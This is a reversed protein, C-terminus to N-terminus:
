PTYGKAELVEGILAQVIDLDGEAMERFKFNMNTLNSKKRLYSNARRSPPLDCFAFIGDLVERPKVVFDEYRVELFQTEPLERKENEVAEIVRRWQLAALAAASRGYREWEKVDKDTLADYWWPQELGRGQRWFEVNLLSRVVARGDRIIHIFIADPFISRLYHIRPPGTLKASFRTRRQFRTVKRVASRLRKRESPTAKVGDLFSYLFKDGCHLKWFGYAEAPKPLYRNILSVDGMQNKKGRLRLLGNDTVARIMEVQPWKPFRGLLNSPWALMEHSAVAEFVVTTGSRGMGVLFIPRELSDRVM